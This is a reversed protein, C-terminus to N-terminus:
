LIVINDTYQGGRSPQRSDCLVSLRYQFIKSTPMNSLGGPFFSASTVGVSHGLDCVKSAARQCLQTLLSKTAMDNPRLPIYMQIGEASAPIIFQIPKVYFLHCHFRALM